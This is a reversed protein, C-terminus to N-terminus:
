LVQEVQAVMLVQAMIVMVVVAARVLHKELTELLATLAVLLAAGVLTLHVVKVAELARYRQAKTQLRLVMEAPLM